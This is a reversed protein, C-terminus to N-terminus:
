PKIMHFLGFAHPTKSLIESLIDKYNNSDFVTNGEPIVANESMAESIARAALEIKARQTPTLAKLYM